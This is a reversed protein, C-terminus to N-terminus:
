TVPRKEDPKSSLSNQIRRMDVQLGSEDCKTVKGKSYIEEGGAMSIVVDRANSAFVLAAHIDIVPQQAINSLSVVVIDAQKGADLSGIKEDLGLAKAGGLTAAELVEAATVFRKRGPRNRTALAAFRSEELLDCINNSAVSDSGLGIAIERDM